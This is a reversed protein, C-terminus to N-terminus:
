LTAVKAHATVVKPSATGKPLEILVHFILTVKPSGNNEPTPPTVIPIRRYTPFIIKSAVDPVDELNSEHTTDTLQLVGAGDTTSRSM